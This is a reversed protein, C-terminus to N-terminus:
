INVSLSADPTHLFYLQSPISLHPRKFGYSRVLIEHNTVRHLLFGEQGTRSKRTGIESGWHNLKWLMTSFIDNSLSCIPIRLFSHSQTLLISIQILYSLWVFHRDSVRSSFTAIVMAKSFWLQVIQLWWSIGLFRSM